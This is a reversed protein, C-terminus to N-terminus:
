NLEKRSQRENHKRNAEVIEELLRVMVPSDRRSSFERQAMRRRVVPKNTVSDRNDPFEDQAMRRRGAVPVKFTLTTPLSLKTQDILHNIHAYSQGEVDDEGVRVIQSGVLLGKDLLTPDNVKAVYTRFATGDIRIGFPTHDFDITVSKTPMLLLGGSACIRQLNERHSSMTDGLKTYLANLHLFFDTDDLRIIESVLKDKKHHKATIKLAPGGPTTVKTISTTERLRLGGFNLLKKTTMSYTLKGESDITYYRTKWRFMGRIEFSGTKAAQAVALRSAENMGETGQVTGALFFLAVLLLAGWRRPNRLEHSNRSQNQTLCSITNHRKKIQNRPVLDCSQKTMSLRTTHGPRTELPLRTTHGPRIQNRLVLRSSQNTMSLRTTHGPRTQNNMTNMTNM